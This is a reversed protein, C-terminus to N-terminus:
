KSWYKILLNHIKKGYLNFEHSDYSFAIINVMKSSFYEEDKYFNYLQTYKKQPILVTCYEIGQQYDFEANYSPINYVKLDIVYEHQSLEKILAQFVKDGRYREKLSGIYTFTYPISLIRMSSDFILHGANYILYLTGANLDEITKPVIIYNNIGMFDKLNMIDFKKNLIVPMYEKHIPNFMTIETLKNNKYHEKIKLYKNSTHYTVEVLTTKKSIATDFMVKIENM